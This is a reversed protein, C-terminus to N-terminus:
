WRYIDFEGASFEALTHDRLGRLPALRFSLTGNAFIRRSRLLARVTGRQIPDGVTGCFGSSEDHEKM